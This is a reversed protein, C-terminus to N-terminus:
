YIARVWWGVQALVNEFSTIPAAAAALAFLALALIVSQFQTYM